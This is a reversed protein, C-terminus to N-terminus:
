GARRLLKEPGGPHEHLFATVDYVAGDIALWCSSATNHAELEAWAFVREAGADNHESM